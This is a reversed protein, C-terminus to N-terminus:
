RNFDKKAPAHINLNIKCDALLHQLEHVDHIRATFDNTYKFMSVEWGSPHQRIVVYEPGKSYSYSGDEHRFFGGLWEATLPVPNYFGAYELSSLTVRMLQNYNGSHLVWDGIRLDEVKM